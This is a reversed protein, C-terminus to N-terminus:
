EETDGRLRYEELEKPFKSWENFDDDSLNSYRGISANRANWAVSLHHFAHELKLQLDVESRRPSEEIYRELDELQERAEMVNHGIIKWNLRAM